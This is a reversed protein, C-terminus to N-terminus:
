EDDICAEACLVPGNDESEDKIFDFLSSEAIEHQETARQLNKLATAYYSDKLECGYFRRDLKIAEYGTSGIGSFPDFILEDPNSFLRILRNITDLQLPCVHRSDKVDKGEKTNLTRTQRIGHWCGAAWDIWEERTIGPSNIPVQNESPAIFKIVYDSMAARSKARDRELTVFLLGHAHSRIAEVQPNKWVLWDNDYLFGARKAIRILLGRFDYTDKRRGLPPLNMCHCAFIRGPKMVRLMGRFFFNFHIWMDSESESNGLDQELDTYAYVSPFPVSTIACDVSQPTMDTYMHPICDGHFLSYRDDPM